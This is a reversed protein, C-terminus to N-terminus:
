LDSSGQSKKKKYYMIAVIIVVIIIGIILVIILWFWWNSGDDTSLADLIDNYTEEVFTKTAWIPNTSSSKAKLDLNTPDLSFKMSREKIYSGIYAKGIATTSKLKNRPICNFYLNAPLKNEEPNPNSVLLVINPTTMSSYTPSFPQPAIMYDDSSSSYNTSKVTLTPATPLDDPVPYVTVGSCPVAFTNNNDDSVTLDLGTKNEIYYKDVSTM